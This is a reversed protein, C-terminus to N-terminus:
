IKAACGVDFVFFNENYDLGYVCLSIDYIIHLLRGYQTRHIPANHTHFKMWERRNKHWVSLVFVEFLFHEIFNNDFKIEFRLMIITKSSVINM